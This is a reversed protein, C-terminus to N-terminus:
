EGSGDASETQYGGGRDDNQGARGERVQMEYGKRNMEEWKDRELAMNKPPDPYGLLEINTTYKGEEFTHVSKLLLWKRSFVTGALDGVTWFDTTLETEAGKLETGLSPDGMIVANAKFANDMIVSRLSASRMGVRGKDLAKAVETM